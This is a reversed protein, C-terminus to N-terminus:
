INYFYLFRNLTLRNIREENRKGGEEKEWGGGKVVWRRKGGV